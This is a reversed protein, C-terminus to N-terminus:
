AVGRYNAGRQLPESEDTRRRETFSGVKFDRTNEPLLGLGILHVIIHRRWDPQTARDRFWYRVMGAQSLSFTLFVNISYMLVLTSTQGWTYVLTLVAAGSMLMVGNHMTLQESLHSFSHPLWSDTAMNAMVRPGDIFGTQASGSVLGFEAGLLKTAV